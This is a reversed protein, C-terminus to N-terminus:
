KIKNKFSGKISEDSAGRRALESAVGARFSHSRVVKNSNETVVSTLEKLNDNFTKGTYCLHNTQQFFPKEPLSERQRCSGLYRKMAKVPCLFSDNGFIELIAGNGIRNEKPSKITLHIIERTKRGVKVETLKIDKNLLTTQVDPDSQVKALAEHVRLSGAWLLTSVSWFLFKQKAPWNAEYLKRKLVVMLEITVPTRSPKNALQATVADWHQSGRLLLKVIAPRLSPEDLGIELHASRVGSLQSDATEAKVKRTFLLYALFNLTKETNWPLSLDCSLAEECRQINNKVTQYNSKTNASYAMNAREAM